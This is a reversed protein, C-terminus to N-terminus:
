DEREHEPPPLVCSALETMLTELEAALGAIPELLVLAHRFYDPGQDDVAVWL